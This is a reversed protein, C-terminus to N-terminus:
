QNFQNIIAVNTAQKLYYYPFLGVFFLQFFRFFFGVDTDCMACPAICIRPLKRRVYGLIRHLHQIQTVCQAVHSACEGEIWAAAKHPRPPLKRRVYVLTCRLDLMQTAGQAIHSAFQGTPSPLSNEDCMSSPTICIGPQKTQSPHAM